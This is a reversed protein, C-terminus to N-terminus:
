IFERGMPKPLTAAVDAVSQGTDVAGVHTEGAPRYYWRSFVVHRVGCACAHAQLEPMIEPIQTGREVESFDPSEVKLTLEDAMFNEHTSVAVIEAPLHLVQALLPYSLRVIRQGM